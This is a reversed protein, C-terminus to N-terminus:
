LVSDVHKQVTPADVWTINKQYWEIPMQVDKSAGTSPTFGLIVANGTVPYNWNPFRFGGIIPHFLGEEDIYLSDHKGFGVPPVEFLNCGNGIADYISKSDTILIETITKEVCDIHYAKKPTNNAKAM